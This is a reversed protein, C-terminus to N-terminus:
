QSRYHMRMTKRDVIHFWDDPKYHAMYELAEEVTNFDKVFDEWGGKPYYNEGAFLLYRKM